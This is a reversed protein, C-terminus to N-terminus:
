GDRGRTAISAASVPLPSRLGRRLVSLVQKAVTRVVVNEGSAAKEMAPVVSQEGMEGLGYLAGVQVLIDPDHLMEVLEPVANGQGRRGLVWCIQARRNSDSRALAAVLRREYERSHGDVQTGCSPCVVLTNQLERWCKPCLVSM